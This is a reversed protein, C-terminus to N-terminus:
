SAVYYIYEHLCSTHANQERIGKDQWSAIVLERGPSGHRSFLRRNTVTSLTRKYKRIRGLVFFGEKSGKYECRRSLVQQDDDCSIVRDRDRVLGGVFELLEVRM